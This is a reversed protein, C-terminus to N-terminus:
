YQRSCTCDDGVLSKVAPQYAVRAASNIVAVPGAAVVGRAAPAWGKVKDMVQGVFGVPRTGLQMVGQANFGKAVQAVSFPATVTSNAIGMAVANILANDRAEIWNFEGGACRAGSLEQYGLQAIEFIPFRIAVQSLGIVVASGIKGLGWSGARYAAAVGVAPSVVGAAGGAIAGAAVSAYDVSGTQAYSVAAAATGVGIAGAVGGVVSPVGFEGTPDVLMTPAGGVYEYTNIGGALGIPDSQMYRGIRPNYERRWNQFMGTEADFVQGPFRQNYM